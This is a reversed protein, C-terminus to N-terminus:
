KRRRLLIVGGWVCLGLLTLLTLGVGTYFTGPRFFMTVTHQGPPVVLGRLAVNTQYIETPVDDTVATWGPYYTDSVVLFRPHEAVVQITLSNATRGVV